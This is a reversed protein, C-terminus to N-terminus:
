GEVEEFDPWFVTLYGVALSFRGECGVWSQLDIDKGGNWEGLEALMSIPTDM